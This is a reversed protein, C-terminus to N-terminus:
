SVSLGRDIRTTYQCPVITSQVCKSPDSINILKEYTGSDARNGYIFTIRYSTVSAFTFGAILSTFYLLIAFKLM